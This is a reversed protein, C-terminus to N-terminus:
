MFPARKSQLPLLKALPTSCLQPTAEPGPSTTSLSYSHPAPLPLYHKVELSIGDKEQIHEQALCDKAKSPCHEGLQKM